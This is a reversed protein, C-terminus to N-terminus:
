IINFLIQQLGTQLEKKRAVVELLQDRQLELEEIPVEILPLNSIEIQLKQLAKISPNSKNLIEGVIEEM